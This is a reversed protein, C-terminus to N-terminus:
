SFIHYDHLHRRTYSTRLHAKMYAETAGTKITPNFIGHPDFIHKTAAMLETLEEGYAAPGLTGRVLGDGHTSAPSGGLSVVLEAYQHQLTFLTTIDKKKSIDLRPALRVVGTGAHAWFGAELSHQKLLKTTKEILRPLEHPPIVADEIFPVAPKAGSEYWASVATRRLKWLVVQEIPDSSVRVTAGHRRLVHGARTSGLKQAFQSFNDFEVLLVGAPIKDPLIGELDAPRHARYQELLGKDAFEIASAGLQKLRALAEGVGALRDFYGVVLTTRPSYAQTKLTIETIHGLTGQAGIFLQSLDFSGNKGRVHRLGYGMGAADPVHTHAAITDQNDLLLSDVKRYLEGELTMLGKKRALERASLRSTQILSGDSLAVKLGAVWSRIGGYKVSKEGSSGSSVAGGVTAYHMNAPYPPIFRGHTHLTQQLANFIIGPQVAVTNHELRLLKNMHAPYVVHLGEGVAGGAQESGKGRAVLTIPKGAATREAAYQITKRVDATNQPYVVATPIAEFLSQDSSFHELTEANDTVSGLLRGALDKLDAHKM